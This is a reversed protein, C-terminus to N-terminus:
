GEMVNMDYEKGVSGQVTCVMCREVYVKGKDCIRAVASKTNKGAEAPVPTM